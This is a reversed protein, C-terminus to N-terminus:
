SFRVAPSLVHEALKAESIRDSSVRWSRDAARDVEDHEGRAAIVGAAQRPGARCVAPSSVTLALETDALWGIYAVISRCRGQHLSPQRKCANGSSTVVRAANGRVMSCIAPPCINEAFGAAAGCAPYARDRGADSAPKRELPDADAPAM